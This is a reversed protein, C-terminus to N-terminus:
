RQGNDTFHSVVVVIVAAHVELFLRNGAHEVITAAPTVLIDRFQQLGEAFVIAEYHGTPDSLGIIGMKAAAYNSQGIAGILGSPSTM